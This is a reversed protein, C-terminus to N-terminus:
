RRLLRSLNGDMVKTVGGVALHSRHDTVKDHVFNYTRVKETRAASGIQKARAQARDADASQSALANLRRRLMQMALMKNQHQSKHSSCAVVGSPVHTIRVASDTTNVHQGGSGSSRKTEVKLDSRNFDAIATTVPKSLVAVTATSTHVRGKSESAPIRQIRHVGAEMSLVRGVEAGVVEATADKLGGQPSRSVNLLKFNWDMRASFREYMRLLQSAFLRAESGGVGARVELWVASPLVEGKSKGMM